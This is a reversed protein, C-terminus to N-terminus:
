NRLPFLNWTRGDLMAAKVHDHLVEISMRLPSKDRAAMKLGLLIFGSTRGGKAEM